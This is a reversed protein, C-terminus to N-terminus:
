TADFLLLDAQTGMLSRMTPWGTRRSDWWYPVVVSPWASVPVGTTGKVETHGLLALSQCPSHAPSGTERGATLAAIEWRPWVTPSSHDADPM